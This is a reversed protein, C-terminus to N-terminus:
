REQGPAAGVAGDAGSRAREPTTRGRSWALLRDPPPPTDVRAAPVRGEAARACAPPQAAPPGPAPAP